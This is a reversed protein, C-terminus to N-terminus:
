IFRGIRNVPISIENKLEGYKSEEMSVIVCTSPGGSKYIDISLNDELFYKINNTKSMQNLEYLIGKSGVPLIEKIYRKKKLELLKSTSMITNSDNLVENGVKPLGVVTAILGPETYHKRWEKKNIIGIITIGIGTVTVPFNEETSGTILNINHFDLPELAEKIGKIIRKGTDNMEVSLTNIVTIPKAGFSLIEMLAVQTTFYGIVEPTTKVVDNKKNGIGGASDCSIILLQEENIDILTLDRYKSINM